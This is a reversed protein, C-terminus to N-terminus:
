ESQEYVEVKDLLENYFSEGGLALAWPWIAGRSDYYDLERVQWDCDIQRVTKELLKAQLSRARRSMERIQEGKPDTKALAKRQANLRGIEELIEPFNEGQWQLRGPPDSLKELRQNAENILLDCNESLLSAPVEDRGMAAALHAPLLIPTELSGM